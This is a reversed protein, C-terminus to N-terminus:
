ITSKAEELKMVFNMDSDLQLKEIVFNLGEKYRRLYELSNERDQQYSYYSLLEYDVNQGLEASEKLFHLCSDADGPSKCLKFLLFYCLGTNLYSEMKNPEIQIATKLEDIANKLLSESKENNYFLALHYLALGLNNHYSPNLNNLEISMKYSKISELLLKEKADLSEFSLLFTNIGKKFYVRPLQLNIGIAKDLLGNAENLLGIRLDSLYTAANELLTSYEIYYEFNKDDLAVASEFKDKGKKLFESVNGPELQMLKILTVGLNLYLNPKEPDFSIATEYFDVAKSFYSNSKISDDSNEAVRYAIDAAPEYVEPLDTKMKIVMELQEVIEEDSFQITNGLKQLRLFTMLRNYICTALNSNHKLAIDYKEIALNYMAEKQKDNSKTEAISCINNGWNYFPIALEKILDPENSAIIEAELALLAPDNKQYSNKDVIDRLKAELPSLKKPMSVRLNYAALFPQGGMNTLRISGGHINEFGILGTSHNGLIIVAQWNPFRGQIVKNSTYSKKFQNILEFFKIAINIVSHTLPLIFNKVSLSYQKKGEVIVPKDTMFLYDDDVISYDSHFFSNRLRNYYLSDLLESLATMGCEGALEKLKAIKDLPYLIEDNGRNDFLGIQYRDGKSIHFLNGIFRYLENMEFFHCYLFLGTRVGIFDDANPSLQKSFEKFLKESEYLHSLARPDGMSGNYGLLLMIFEFEDKQQAITFLGELDNIFNAELKKFDMSFYKSNEIILKNRGVSRYFGLLAVGYL